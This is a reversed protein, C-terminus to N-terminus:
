RAESLGAGAPVATFRDGHVAGCLPHFQHACGLCCVASGLAVIRAKIVPPHIARPGGLLRHAILRHTTATLNTPIIRTGTTPTKGRTTERIPEARKIAVRTTAAAAAASSSGASSAFSPGTRRPARHSFTIMKQSLPFPPTVFHQHTFSGIWLGFWFFFCFFFAYNACWGCTEVCVMLCHVRILCLLGALYHGVTPQSLVPEQCKLLLCCVFFFKRLQHLVEHSSECERRTLTYPRM